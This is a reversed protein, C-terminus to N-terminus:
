ALFKDLLNTFSEFGDVFCLHGGDRVVKLKVEKGEGGRASKLGKEIRRRLEEMTQFLAVDKEGVLLLAEGVHSGARAALPRLDFSTSRLAVCCAEFGDVTTGRMVDRVRETEAPHAALWRRGFWRELTTEISADMNGAARADAVSLGFADPTGGNVSSCSVTDCAVLREVVGPYRAAFVIATAAGLSVGIWAHLTRM